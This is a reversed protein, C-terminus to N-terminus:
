WAFTDQRTLMPPAGNDLTTLEADFVLATDSRGVDLCPAFESIRVAKSIGSALGHCVRRTAERRRAARGRESSRLEVSYGKNGYKIDVISFGTDFPVVRFSVEHNARARGDPGESMTTGVNVFVGTGDENPLSFTIKKNGILKNLEPDLKLVKAM